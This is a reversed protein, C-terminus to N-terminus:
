AFLSPTDLIKELSKFVGIRGSTSTGPGRLLGEIVIVNATDIASRCYTLFQVFYAAIKLM